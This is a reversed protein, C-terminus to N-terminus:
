YGPEIKNSTLKELHEYYNLMINHEVSFKDKVLQITESSLPMEKHSIIKLLLEVLYFKYVSIGQVIYIKGCWDVNSFVTSPNNFISVEDFCKKCEESDLIKNNLKQYPLNNFTDIQHNLIVMAENIDSKICELTKADLHEFDRYVESKFLMILKNTDELKVYSYVYFNYLVSMRGWKNNRNLRILTLYLQESNLINNSVCYELQGVLWNRKQTDYDFYPEQTDILENFLKRWIFLAKTIPPKSSSM